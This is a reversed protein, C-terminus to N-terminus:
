ARRDKIINNWQRIRISERSSLTQNLPAEVYGPLANLLQQHRSVKSCPTKEPSTKPVVPATTSKQSELAVDPTPPVVSTAEPTTEQKQTEEM